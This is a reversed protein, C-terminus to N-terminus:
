VKKALKYGQKQLWQLVKDRNDGQVMIEGDKVAGGTGCHAKLQKGLTEVDATTGAFGDVLTVAKGGRQKTDLRIRLKQQAPPLTATEEPQEDEIKIDPNTSYVLGSLSNFKKKSM